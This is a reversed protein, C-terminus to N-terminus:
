WPETVQIRCLGVSHDLWHGDAAVIPLRSGAADLLGVELDCSGSPAGAEITLHHRMEIVAGVEREVALGDAAALRQESTAWVQGDGGLVNAFVAEDALEASLLEWYLVLQLTEGPAARRTDVDYGVLAARGGFGYYIPSPYDGPRSIIDVEGLRLATQGQETQLREGTVPWYLGLQVYATDPAYATDPLHIRYTDRFRFGADWSTTPYMGLGPYTDRQAVIPGADSVLHVFVAYDEAPRALVEWYASVQLVEGPQVSQPSVEYGILRAIGGFQTDSPNPVSQLEATSLQRPGAYAPGLVGLLAYVALGFVVSALALGGVRGRGRPLLRRAGEVLLAALAPLAPFLFRGMAGAPQILMYYVVAAFSACVSACLVLQVPRDPRERRPVLHGALAVACAILLGAYVADPMPVQGYGFRGWLSSWLYPLGQRVAWWNGEAPRGAWLESVKSLGTWDGYLLQNRCFWWGSVLSALAVVVLNARLLLRWSRQRYAAWALAVEIPVALALLNFKSLLALGFVVGLAAERRPGLGEQVLRLCAVLVAAALLTAMIDNNVAASLYLFQPNFAVVAAACAALVSRGSLVRLALRYTLAVAGAGICVTLWRVLYVALTVGHFPYDEEEGHLYQNKNDSGVEWANFGGYQNVPPEYYVDQNVTVPWGVLAGLAYYLPPHHSQARPAGAEQLPLERYVILHRVYRFHRIEDTPEYIPSSLSYAVALLVYGVLVVSLAWHKRTQKL